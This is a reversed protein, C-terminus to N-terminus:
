TPRASLTQCPPYAVSATAPPGISPWTVKAKVRRQFSYYSDAEPCPAIDWTWEEGPGELDVDGLTGARGIIQGEQSVKLREVDTILVRICDFSELYAIHKFIIDNTLASIRSEPMSRQALLFKKPLYSLQSLLNVSAFLDIEPDDLFLNPTADPPGSRNQIIAGRYLAEVIGTVDAAVLHVNRGGRCRWRNSLSHVIDVLFVDRFSSALEDIPVDYLLGSGLIVAKRRQQCKNIAKRIVSKSREIHPQWAARCRRYRAKIGILEHVYGMARVHWPCPTALYELWDAIM